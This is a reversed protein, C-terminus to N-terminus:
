AMVSLVDKGLIASGNLGMEIINVHIHSEALTTKPLSNVRLSFSPSGHFFSHFNENDQDSRNEKEAAHRDGLLGKHNAADPILHAKAAFDTLGAMPPGLKGHVQDIVGTPNV